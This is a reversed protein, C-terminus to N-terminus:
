KRLINYEASYASVKAKWEELVPHKGDDPLKYEADFINKSLMNGIKLDKLAQEYDKKLQENEKGYKYNLIQLVGMLRGVEFGIAAGTPFGDNFGQQLNVEKSSVIGDLYGRKNHQERLKQLDRSYGANENSIMESDSDSGWVDDLIDEQNSM